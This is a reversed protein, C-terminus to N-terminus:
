PEHVMRALRLRGALAAAPVYALLVLATVAVTPPDGNVPLVALSRKTTLVAGITAIAKIGDVIVAPSVVVSSYVSVLALEVEPAVSIVKLLVNGLKMVVALIVGAFSEQPM